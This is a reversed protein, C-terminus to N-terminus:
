FGAEGEGDLADQMMAASDAPLADAAADQMEDTVEPVPDALVGDDPPPAVDDACAALPLLLTLALLARM